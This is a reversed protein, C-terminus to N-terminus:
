GKKLYFIWFCAIVPIILFFTIRIFDNAGAGIGFAAGTNQVYTINFLGKIVPFSQGLVMSGQIAGKSLQDVLIIGVMILLLAWFRKM